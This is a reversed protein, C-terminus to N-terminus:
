KKGRKKEAKAEREALLPRVTQVLRRDRSGLVLWTPLSDHWIVVGEIARREAKTM